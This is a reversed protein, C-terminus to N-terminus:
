GVLGTISGRKRTQANAGVGEPDGVIHWTTNVLERRGERLSTTKWLVDVDISVGESRIRSLACKALIDFYYKKSTLIYNIIWAVDVADM